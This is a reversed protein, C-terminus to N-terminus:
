DTPKKTPREDSLLYRAGTGLTAAADQENYLACTTLSLCGCGICDGLQARLRQLIEIRETLDPQWRKALQAWDKRTPTRSAPLSDLAARIDALSLGIRQAVQIFSVRRLMEAAYRRHGSATRTSSILGNSEYFRLASTAVGARTALEGVSFESIKNVEVM